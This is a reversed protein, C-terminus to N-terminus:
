ILEKTEKEFNQYTVDTFFYIDHAGSSEKLCTLTLGHMHNMVFHSLSNYYGIFEIANLKHSITYLFINKSKFLYNPFCVTTDYSYSEYISRLAIERETTNTQLNYNQM